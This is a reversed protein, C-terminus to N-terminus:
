RRYGMVCIYIYQIPRHMIQM